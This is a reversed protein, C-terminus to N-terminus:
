EIEDFKKDPFDETNGSVDSGSKDDEDGSHSSDEDNQNDTFAKDLGDDNPKAPDDNNDPQNVEAPKKGGTHQIRM